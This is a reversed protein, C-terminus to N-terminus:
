VYNWPKEKSSSENNKLSNMSCRDCFKKLKNFVFTLMEM